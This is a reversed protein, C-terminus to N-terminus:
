PGREALHERHSGPAHAADQGSARHRLTILQPFAPHPTWGALRRRRSRNHRARRRQHTERLQRPKKELPHSETPVRECVDVADVYGRGKMQEFYVRSRVDRLFLLVELPKIDTGTAIMDVTVAIRRTPSTRFTDAAGVSRTRRRRISTPRPRPVAILNESKEYRKSEPNYAKYTIKKAFDNGCGFVERVRHVIDEVHSDDKAFILTKPALARGPFLDTGLADRYATLWLRAEFGITATSQAAKPRGGSKEPPPASAVPATPSTASQDGPSKASAFMAAPDFDSLLTSGKKSPASESSFNRPRAM